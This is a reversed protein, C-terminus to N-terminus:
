AKVGKFDTGVPKKSNELAWAAAKRALKRPTGNGCSRDPTPKWKKAKKEPAKIPIRSIATATRRNKRVDEAIMFVGYCMLAAALCAVSWLVISM